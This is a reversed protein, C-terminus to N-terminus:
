GLSGVVKDFSSQPTCDGFCFALTKLNKNSNETKTITNKPDLNLIISLCSAKALPLDKVSHCNQTDMLIKELIYLYM